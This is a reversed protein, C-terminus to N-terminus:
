NNGRKKLKTKMNKKNQLAQPSRPDRNQGITENIKRCLFLSM